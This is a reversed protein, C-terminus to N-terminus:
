RKTKIRKVNSWASYLNGKFSSVYKYTRVKVYYTKGGKLSKVTRSVNKAGSVKIYKKGKTFKSNTALFIQYGSVQTTKKTWYVVIAKKKAKLSKLTTKQPKITFFDWQEGYYEGKGCIRCSYENVNKPTLGMFDKYFDVGETLVKGDVTVVKVAPSQVKGNYVLSKTVFGIKAYNLNYPDIFDGDTCIVPYDFFGCDKADIKKLDEITGNYYVSVKSDSADFANEDIKKLTSPLKVISINDCLHFAQYGIEEIGEPIDLTQISNNNEFAWPYITKVTYTVGNYEVTQPIKPAAESGTYDVIYVHDNGWVQFAYSGSKLMGYDDDEVIPYVDCVMGYYDLWDHSAFKNFARLFFNYEMDTYGADWTADAAYWKGDVCTIIWSHDDSTMEVCGIGAENLMMMILDTYGSCIAKHAFLASHATAAYFVRQSNGPFELADDDYEVNSTVWDYIRKIKDIDSLAPDSWIELDTLISRVKDYTTELQEIEKIETQEDIVTPVPDRGDGEPPLTGPSYCIRATTFYGDAVTLGSKNVMASANCGCKYFAEVGINEVPKVCSIENLCRCSEFASQGIKELTSPFSVSMISDCAYFCYDSLAKVGESIEVRTIDYAYQEYIDTGNFYVPFDLEENVTGNGLILTCTGEGDDNSLLTYSFLDEVGEAIVDGSKRLRLPAPEPKEKRASDPVEPLVVVPAEREYMGTPLDRQADRGAPVVEDAAFVPMATFALMLALLLATFRKTAKM